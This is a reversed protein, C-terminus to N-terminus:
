CTPDPRFEGNNGMYYPIFEDVWNQLPNIYRHYPDWIGVLPPIVMVVETFFMPIKLVLDEKPPVVGALCQRNSVEFALKFLNHLDFQIM